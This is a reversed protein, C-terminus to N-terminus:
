STTATRRARQRDPQEWVAVTRDGSATVLKSADKTFHMATIMSNHAHSEWLQKGTKINWLKIFGVTDATAVRKGDSACAVATINSKHGVFEQIVNRSSINWLKASKGNGTLFTKANASLAVIGDRGTGEISVRETGAAVDWIRVTNDGGATLLRRGDPFYEAASALYDHGESLQRLLAGSQHDWLRATRDRSASIIQGGSNSFRAALVADQHGDVTAASLIRSERYAGVDWIRISDDFSGSWM